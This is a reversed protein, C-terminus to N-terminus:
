LREKSTYELTANVNVIRDGTASLTRGIESFWCGLYNIQYDVAQPIGGPVVWAETVDFPDFQNALRTLGQSAVGGVGTPFALEMQTRYIDYRRVSITMGSVNNPVKEYPEGPGKQYQRIAAPGSGSTAAGFEYLEAIARTMRPTWENITGVVVTNVKITMAHSLQTVTKPPQLAM